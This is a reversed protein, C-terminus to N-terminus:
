DNGDAGKYYHYGVDDTYQYAKASGVSQNNEDVIEVNISDTESTGYNFSIDTERIKKNIKAAVSIATSLFLLVLTCILLATLTEILSEGSKDRLKKMCKKNKM